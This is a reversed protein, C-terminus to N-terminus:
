ESRSASERQVSDAEEISEEDHIAGLVNEIAQKHCASAQEMAKRARAAQRRIADNRAEREAALDDAHTPRAALDDVAPRRRRLVAVLAYAVSGAGICAFVVVAGRLVLETM